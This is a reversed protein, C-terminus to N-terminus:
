YTPRKIVNTQYKLINYSRPMKVIQINNYNLHFGVLLESIWDIKFITYYCPLYIFIDNYISMNKQNSIAFQDNVTYSGHEGKHLNAEYLYLKTTDLLSLNISNYLIIDSRMRVVYDFTINNEQAYSNTLLGVQHISYFLSLTNFPYHSYYGFRAVELDKSFTYNNEHAPKEFYKKVDDPNDSNYKHRLPNNLYEEHTDKVNILQYPHKEFDKQKDIYYRHPKIVNKLYDIDEPTSTDWTHVFIYFEINENATFFTKLLPYTNKIFRLFGSYQIAIKM